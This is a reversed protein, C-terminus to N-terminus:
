EQERDQMQKLSELNSKLSPLSSSVWNKLEADEIKDGKTEFNKVMEEHNNKEVSLWQGDFNEREDILENRVAKAEDTESEAVTIGSKDAYARLEGLMRAHDVQLSKATKKIEPDTSRADALKALEIEAYSAAVANVVFDADKEAERNHFVEENKEKAADEGASGEHQQKCSLASLLLFLFVSTQPIRKM